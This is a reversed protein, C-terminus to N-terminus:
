RELSAAVKQRYQEVRGALEEWDLGPIQRNEMVVKGDIVVTDVSSGELAYVVLSYPDYVPQARAEALSVLLLDAKKGAELSGLEDELDLAAASGITAARLVQRASAVTPDRRHLKHLKAMFDMSDFMDLDNNSAAGDTGLGLDIGAELMEVVPAAGSALKMNSEPNHVVGVGAEALLRIEEADLWVGHAAVVRDELFGIDHLYRAPTTGERERIQRVEDETEALHILVPVDHRRGLELSALLTESSNTFPAHPAVAPVILPHDKWRGIFGDTFALTQEPTAHDPAPFGIVTQGAVSRMGLESAARAVEDLFYYMDAFLTTGSSLMEVVALRSGWYVFEADVNAGEAPFIYSELWEMLELDDAMGRLLVMAAHQHANILGPMVLQHPRDLRRAPNFRGADAAAGVAVMRDDRVAVYGPRHVTDGDDLTLVVAATILLDVSEGQQPPAEPQTCATLLLGALLLRLHPM